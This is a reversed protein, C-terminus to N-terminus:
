RGPEGLASNGACEDALVDWEPVADVARVLGPERDERVLRIWALAVLVLLAALLPDGRSLGGGPPSERGGFRIRCEHSGHSVVPTL